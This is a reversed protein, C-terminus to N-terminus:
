SRKSRARQRVHRHQVMRKQLSFRPGELYGNRHQFEKVSSCQVTHIPRAKEVRGVCKVPFGVKGTWPRGLAEDNEM